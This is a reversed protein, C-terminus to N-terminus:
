DEKRRSSTGGFTRGSGSNYGMQAGDATGNMSKHVVEADIRTYSPDALQGYADGGARGMLGLKSTDSGSIGATNEGKRTGRIDSMADSTGSLAARGPM